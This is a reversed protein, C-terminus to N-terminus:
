CTQLRKQVKEDSGLAKTKGTNLQCGAIMGFEKSVTMAIVLIKTVETANHSLGRISSDDIFGATDAGSEAKVARTWVVMFM